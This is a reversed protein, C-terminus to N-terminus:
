AARREETPRDLPISYLIADGDHAV